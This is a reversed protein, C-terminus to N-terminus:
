IMISAAVRYELANVLSGAYSNGMCTDLTTVSLPAQLDLCTLLMTQYM